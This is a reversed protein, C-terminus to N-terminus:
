ILYYLLFGMLGVGYVWGFYLVNLMCKHIYNLDKCTMGIRCIEWDRGYEFIRNWVNQDLDGINKPKVYNDRIIRCSNVNKGGNRLKRKYRNKNCKIKKVRTRM